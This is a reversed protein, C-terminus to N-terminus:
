AAEKRPRGRKPKDAMQENLLEEMAAMKERMEALEADKEAVDRSDLFSAAMDPIKHADPWNLKELAAASMGRVAEVTSIGMRKLAAVQGANLGGWAALPTGDEPLAEGKKWAEYAPGVINWRLEMAKYSDSDRTTADVDDRPMLHKIRHWTQTKEYEEGQPALLVWDQPERGLPYRTEFKVIVHM